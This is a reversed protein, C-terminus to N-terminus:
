GSPSPFEGFRTHSEKSEPTFFLNSAFEYYQHKPTRTPAYGAVRGPRKRTQAPKGAAASRKGGALIGCGERSARFHESVGPGPRILGGHGDGMLVALVLAEDVDEISAVNFDGGLEKGTAPDVAHFTKKGSKYQYGILNETKM